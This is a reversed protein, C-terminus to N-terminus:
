VVLVDNYIIIIIQSLGIDRKVAKGRCKITYGYISVILEFRRVANLNEKKNEEEEDHLQAWEPTAGYIESFKEDLSDKYKANSIERVGRTGKARNMTAVVHKM